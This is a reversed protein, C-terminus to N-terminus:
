RTPCTKHVERLTALLCCDIHHDSIQGVIAMPSFGLDERPRRPGPGSASLGEISGSDGSRLCFRALRPGAPVSQLAQVADLALRPECPHRTTLHGGVELGSM